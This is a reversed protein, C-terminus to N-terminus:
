ICKQIYDAEFCIHRSSAWYRSYVPHRFHQVSTRNIENVSSVLFLCTRQRSLFPCQQAIMSTIGAIRNELLEYITCQLLKIWKWIVCLFKCPLYIILSPSSWWIEKWKLVFRIPPQPHHLAVCVISAFFFYLGIGIEILYVTLCDFWWDYFRM